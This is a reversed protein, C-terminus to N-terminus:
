VKTEILSNFLVNIDNVEDIIANENFENNLDDRLDELTPLKEWKAYLSTSKDGDGLSTIPDLNFSPNNYWGLFRYGAKVPDELSVTQYGYFHNPNTKNNTGGNLYYYIGRLTPTWVAYFDTDNYFKDGVRLIHEVDEVYYVWYNFTYNVSTPKIINSFTVGKKFTQQSPMNSAHLNVLSEGELNEYYNFTIRENEAFAKSTFVLLSTFLITLLIFSKKLHKM